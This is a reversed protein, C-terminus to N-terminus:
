VVGLDDTGTLEVEERLTTRFANVGTQVSRYNVKCFLFFVIEHLIAACLSGSAADNFSLM